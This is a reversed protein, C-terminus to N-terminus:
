GAGSELRMHRRYHTPSEDIESCPGMTSAVKVLQMSPSCLGDEPWKSLLFKYESTRAPEALRICEPRTYRHM